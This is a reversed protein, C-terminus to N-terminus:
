PMWQPHIGPLPLLEPKPLAATPSWQQPLPLLWLRSSAIAKGDSTRLPNATQTGAQLPIVQDLLLALGDPSLSVQIDQQEPLVLLPTVQSSQLDLAALYPEERYTDGPLLRTLLCYLVKQTPDFQAKLVSGNIRLLEKQTGQNTVLFLSRTYDKNFQLMAAQTGDKSFGLVMGFRPLFDLPKEAGPTLPLLALGEGQAVAIAQSDPTILFDGGPQNKLPQPSEGSKLLWLGFEGPNRRSFRQVVIHQGDASLDFKLNQYDQSDLVLQVQGSPEPQSQIQPFVSASKTTPASPLGTTVTYLKQNVLGQQQHRDSASFLIRRGEPYFKFDFVVLHEPTLISKQQRTLNYLVLRGAEAKEVGIYVFAQDRTQFQGTFPQLLVPNDFRDRAGQLQLTYQTGYPAPRNLTYAMRRGAWSVKGPLSPNLKLNGEVSARNMPRNFTLMLATDEAGIVQSQWSFDRVRPASRDGSLLLVGILVGLIVIVAIAAYDLPQSFLRWHKQSIDKLDSKGSM